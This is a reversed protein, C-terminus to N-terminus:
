TRYLSSGPFLETLTPVIASWSALFPNWPGKVGPLEQPTVRCPASISAQLSRRAGFAGLPCEGWAEPPSVRSSRGQAGARGGATAAWRQLSPEGPLLAGGRIEAEGDCGQAWPRSPVSALAPSVAVVGGSGTGSDGHTQSVAGGKPRRETEARAEAETPLRSPGSKGRSETTVSTARLNHLLGPDLRQETPPERPYLLTPRATPPSGQSITVQSGPSPRAAAPFCM